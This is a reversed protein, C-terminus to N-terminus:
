LLIVEDVELRIKHFYYRKKNILQAIIFISHGKQIGLKLIIRLIKALEEFIILHILAPM